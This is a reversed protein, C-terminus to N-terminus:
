FEHKIMVMSLTAQRRRAPLFLLWEREHIEQISSGKRVPSSSGVSKLNPSNGVPSNGGSDSAKRKGSAQSCGGAFHAIWSRLYIHHTIDSV